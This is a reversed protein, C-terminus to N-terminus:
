KAGGDLNVRGKTEIVLDPIAFGMVEKIQPHPAGTTGLYRLNVIHQWEEETATVILETKLSNPLVTRAEQPTAGMEILSFYHSEAIKMASKWETFM